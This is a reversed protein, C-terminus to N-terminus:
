KEVENVLVHSTTTKTKTNSLFTSVHHRAGPFRTGCIKIFDKVALNFRHNHSGVFVPGVLNSLERNAKDNDRLLPIM